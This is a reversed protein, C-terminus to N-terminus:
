TSGYIINHWVIKLTDRRVKEYMDLVYHEGHKDNALRLRSIEFVPIQTMQKNVLATVKTRGHGTM